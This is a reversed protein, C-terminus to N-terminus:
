YRYGARLYYFAGEIGFPTGAPVSAPSYLFSDFYRNDPQKIEDPFTNFLNNAGVSLSVSGFRYGLDADFTVKAGFSEDLSEGTDSHYETPGFYNARAGLTWAALSWRLALTGKQRPLLDEFRNRGYRGLFLDAVRAAGGDVSNFKDQMSAPVRVEDVTTQTFNAAATAKLSGRPLRHNYDVVVDLGNTTTDVANVFFQAGAVGPFPQLITIIPGGIVPDATAFLGSLVVRDKMTVRYYDASLSLNSFLRATFGGSANLSTEEKLRPAGFAATVASQNPSILINTPEVRNTVPDNVFQTLITSYWIQQLGPARFGSSVSGRLAVEHQDNKFMVVRLAAKGTLTNGFDSYNEFRAGLDLNTRATPQTEVGAYVATSLRSNDSADDPRFGPFVQSGPAKAAGSSTLEPGLEYSEPQGAAIGYTERRLEAGGVVSVSKLADQEIRRVGDLNVSTQAYRLRGADFNRPSAQGLSANLSNDIFFHFSDGGYTLSLDGQWPGRRARVGATASWANMLPNIEPLFGNPYVNLDVQSESNPLRYFGSAYGKRLTYGGHAHLDFTDDLKYGASLFTTGVLAGAQGVNMKFDDRTLNRNRLEADTDAQGTIGPFIDDPWPRSRNSRGRAFFEGTLNVFGRTGLKFGGNAGLKFQEGDNSATTGLATYFDVVDVNEKLVINIVGAIADSGYQSAAGDRLVEIRAISSTPIANLDVGVTGGTFVNILSSQHLRKGNILVLVHEPGLGRLDAPDIHDTGDTISLHTANFSPALTNLIQNTEGHNSEAIAESNIVDVPVPTELRSRPTRSGIITIVEGLEDEALAFAVDAPDAGVTVPRELPFAGPGEIRVLHTGPPVALTFEGKEDTFVFAGIGPITVSAGALPSGDEESTVRGRLTTRAEPSATPEPAPSANPEPAPSAEPPPSPPTNQALVPTASFLVVGLAVLISGLHAVRGLSRPSVAEVTVIRPSVAEVTM